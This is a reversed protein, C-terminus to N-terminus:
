WYDDSDDVLECSNLVLDFPVSLDDLESLLSCNSLSVRVSPGKFQSSSLLSLLVPGFDGTCYDFTLSEVSVPLVSKTFKLKFDPFDSFVLHKVSNPLPPLKNFRDLEQFEVREVEFHGQLSKCIARSPFSGNTFVISSPLRVNNFDYQKSFLLDLQRDLLRTNPFVHHFKNFCNYCVHSKVVHQCNMVPITGSLKSFTKFNQNFNKVPFDDLDIDLCAVSVSVNARHQSSLLNLLKSLSITTFQIDINLSSLIPWSNSEEFLPVSCSYSIFIFSQLRPPLTTIPFSCNRLCLSRLELMSEFVSFSWSSISGFNLDLKILKEVLFQTHPDFNVSSVRLKASVLNNYQSIQLFQSVSIEADFVKLSGSTLLPCSLFSNTIPQNCSFHLMKVLPLTTLISFLDRYHFYQDIFGSSDYYEDQTQRFCKFDIFFCTINEHLNLNKLHSLLRVPDLMDILITVTTHSSLVHHPSFLDVLVSSVRPAFLSSAFLPHTLIFHPSSTLHRSLISLLDDVKNQINHTPIDILSLSSFLSLLRPCSENELFSAVESSSLSLQSCSYCWLEVRHSFSASTNYLLLLSSLSCHPLVYTWVAPYILVTTM